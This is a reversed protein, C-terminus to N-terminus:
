LSWPDNGCHHRSHKKTFAFRSRQMQTTLSDDCNKNRMSVKVLLFRKWLETNSNKKQIGEPNYAAKRQYHSGRKKGNKTEEPTTAKM